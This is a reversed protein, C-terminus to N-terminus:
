MIPLFYIIHLTSRCIYCHSALGAGCCLKRGFILEGYKRCKVRQVRSQKKNIKIIGYTDKIHLVKKGAKREICIFGIDACSTIVKSM